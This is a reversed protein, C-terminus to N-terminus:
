RYYKKSVTDGVNYKSCSDNFEISEGNEYEKYAFRCIGTPMPNDWFNTYSKWIIVPHEIKKGNCGCFICVALLAYFSIGLIQKLSTKNKM